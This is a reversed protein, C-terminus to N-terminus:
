PAILEDLRGRMEAETLPGTYSGVVQGSADIFFSTPIYQFQFRSALRQASAEDTIANVFSIKGEYSPVV